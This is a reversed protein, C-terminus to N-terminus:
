EDCLMGQTCSPSRDIEQMKGEAGIFHNGTGNVRLSKGYEWNLGNARKSANCLHYRHNINQIAFYGRVCSEGFWIALVRTRELTAQPSFGQGEVHKFAEPRERTGHLDADM